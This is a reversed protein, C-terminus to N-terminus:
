QPSHPPIVIQDGFFTSLDCLDLVELVARGHGAFHLQKGAAMAERKAAIMLQMGSSDIESVQSLDVEIVRAGRMASLLVDKLEAARYITMEGEIVLHTMGDGASDTYSM